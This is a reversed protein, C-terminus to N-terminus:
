TSSKWQSKREFRGVWERIEVVVDDVGRGTTDVTVDAVAAYLPGRAALLREIAGRPDDGALLPRKATDGVRRLITEAEATLCVLVGVDRLRAINTEDFVAGGGVAIVADKQATAAAVAEREFARFAPEGDEAFIAAVTKGARTEVLHDTDVFPRGLRRALRRGVESKGTGMFGTLVIAGM